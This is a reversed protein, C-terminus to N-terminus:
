LCIKSANKSKLEVTNLFFILVSKNDTVRDM